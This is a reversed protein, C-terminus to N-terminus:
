VTIEDRYWLDWTGNWTHTNQESKDEAHSCCTAELCLPTQRCMNPHHARLNVCVNARHVLGNERGKERKRRERRRKGGERQGGDRGGKRRGGEKKM